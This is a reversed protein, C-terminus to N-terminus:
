AGAPPDNGPELDAGLLEVAKRYLFCARDFQSLEFYRHALRLHAPVSLPDRLLAFQLRTVEGDVEPPAPPAAEPAAVSFASSAEREGQPPEAPSPAGERGQASGAGSDDPAAEGDGSAAGAGEAVPTGEGGGSDRERRLKNVRRLTDKAEDALPGNKVLEALERAAFYAEDLQARDEFLRVVLFRARFNRPNTEILKKYHALALDDKGAKRYAFALSMRTAESAALKLSTELSAVAEDTRELALYSDGLSAHAVAYTPAAAVAKAYFHIAEEYRKQARWANGLLNLIAPDGDRLDLAQSFAEVALDPKGSAMLTEGYKKLSAPDNKKLNRKARELEESM